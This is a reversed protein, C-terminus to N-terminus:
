CSTITQRNDYTESAAMNVAYAITQRNDDTESAAM